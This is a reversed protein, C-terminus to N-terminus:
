ADFLGYSRPIQLIERLCAEDEPSTNTADLNELILECVELGGSNVFNECVQYRKSIFEKLTGLVDFDGINIEYFQRLYPFNNVGHVALWEEMEYRSIYTEAACQILSQVYSIESCIEEWESPSLEKHCKSEFQYFLESVRDFVVSLLLLACTKVTSSRVYQLSKFIGRCIRINDLVVRGLCYFMRLSKLCYTVYLYNIDIDDGDEDVSGFGNIGGGTVEEDFDNDADTSRIVSDASVLAELQSDLKEDCDNSESSDSSNRSISSSCIYSNCGLEEEIILQTYNLMRQLLGSPIDECDTEVLRACIALVVAKHLEYREEFDKELIDMIKEFLSPPLYHGHEIATALQVLTGNFLIDRTKLFTELRKMVETESLGGIIQFFLDKNLWATIDFLGHKSRVEIHSYKTALRGVAYEDPLLEKSFEAVGLYKLNKKNRILIHLDRLTCQFPNGSMELHVLHPLQEPELLADVAEVRSPSSYSLNSVDLQRLEKLELITLLMQNFCDDQGVDLQHMILVNLHNRLVTLCSIDDVMTETIDLHKLRLNKVLISLGESDLPMCRIDLYQLNQLQGLARMDSLKTVMKMPLRYLKLTHLSKITGDSLSGALDDLDIGTVDAVNIRTSFLSLYKWKLLRREGLEKFIMDAIPSIISSEPRPVRWRYKEEDCRPCKTIFLDFNKAIVDLCLNKLSPVEVRNIESDARFSSRSSRDLSSARM